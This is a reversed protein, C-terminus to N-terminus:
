MCIIGYRQRSVRELPGTSRRFELTQSANADIIAQVDRSDQKLQEWEAIFRTRKHRARNLRRTIDALYRDTIFSPPNPVNGSFTAQQVPRPRSIPTIDVLDEVWDRHDASLDSKRRLQKLQEELEALEVLADEMEEHAKPAQAYIRKLRSSADANRILRRPIAVLGHGMMYIAQILGVCYALAMVLLKFSAGNFGNHALVLVYVAAVVSCGIAIAWFRGNSKLSYIFRDYPRRYGSDLYEGLLPLIFRFAHTWSTDTEANSQVMYSCVDALLCHAMRGTHGARPAM